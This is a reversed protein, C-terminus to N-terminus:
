DAMVIFAAEILLVMDVMAEAVMIDIHHTIVMIEIGGTIDATVM